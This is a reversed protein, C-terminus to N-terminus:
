PFAVMKQLDEDWLKLRYCSLSKIITLPAKAQLAPVADYCRKLHYNPIMPNLHHVHHYGINGSFWRLVAPLKYFSSGEMAARLPEWESKRAWYGGEFQHQVYFLWIGAGGALWLVPLQILLYARWGIIRAAALAVAVILLNTFIVGMREKRKVRVDPLRNNLLFNFLAGLVILVIPNRYLRYQLRKMTSSSEYEKLTMTWIDGFGRSDLNAYTGHHRLHIFRWDEFSTFVLVGLFYGFFTNANKSRFFSGHVCDHFLIFIRVLFAAAPLALILTLIYSYGLQISRVMLYWLCFYPVITNMLQRTAKLRDPGRFTKLEPYWDPWIHGTKTKAEGGNVRDSEHIAM